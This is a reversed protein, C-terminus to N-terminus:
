DGLLSQQRPNPSGPIFRLVELVRYAAEGKQGDAAIETTIELKVQYSDEVATVGRGIAAEAINTESIDAFIVSTGL